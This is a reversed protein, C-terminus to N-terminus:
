GNEDGEDCFAAEKLHAMIEQQKRTLARQVEWYRENIRRIEEMLKDREKSLIDYTDSM